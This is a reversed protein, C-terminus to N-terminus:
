GLVFGVNEIAASNDVVAVGPSFGSGLAGAPDAALGAAATLAKKLFDKRSVTESM